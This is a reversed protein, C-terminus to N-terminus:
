VLETLSDFCNFRMGNSGVAFCNIYERDARGNIVQSRRSRRLEPSLLIVVFLRTPISKEPPGAGEAFATIVAM